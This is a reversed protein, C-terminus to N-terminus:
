DEVITDVHCWGIIADQHRQDSVAGLGKNAALIRYSYVLCFHLM